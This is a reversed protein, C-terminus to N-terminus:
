SPPMATDLTYGPDHVVLESCHTPRMGLVKVLTSFDV